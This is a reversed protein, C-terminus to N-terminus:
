AEDPRPISIRAHISIRLEFGSRITQFPGSTLGEIGDLADGYELRRSAIGSPSTQYVM